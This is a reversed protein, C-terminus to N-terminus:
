SDSSEFLDRLAIRAAPHDTDGAQLERLEEETPGILWCSEARLETIDLESDNLPCIDRYEILEERKDDKAVDELWRLPLGQTRCVYPRHEYIRCNNDPSLFACAGRPHPSESTLLDPYHHQILKAEIAFVTLDDVCCDTCGPSCHLKDALQRAIEISAQDIRYHLAEIASLRKLENVPYSEDFSNDKIM